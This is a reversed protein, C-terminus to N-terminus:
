REGARGQDAIRGGLGPRGSPDCLWADVQAREQHAMDGDRRRRPGARRPGSSALEAVEVAHEPREVGAHAAGERILAGLESMPRGRLYEDKHAIEVVDAGLAAMEGLTVFM